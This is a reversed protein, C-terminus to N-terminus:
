IEQLFIFMSQIVQQTETFVASQKGIQFDPVEPIGPSIRELDLHFCKSMSPIEDINTVTHTLRKRNPNPHLNGIM